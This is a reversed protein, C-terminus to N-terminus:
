SSVLEKEKKNVLVTKEGISSLDVGSCLRIVCQKEVTNTYFAGAPYKIKFKGPKGPIPEKVAATRGNITSPNTSLENGLSLINARDELQRKVFKPFTHTFISM